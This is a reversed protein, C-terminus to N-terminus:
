YIVWAAGALVALHAPYAAYFLWKFGPGRKGNYLAILPVTLITTPILLYLWIDLTIYGRLIDAWIFPFLGRHQLINMTAFVTLMMWKPQKVIYVILIFMVGYSGFDTSLIDAISMFGIVPTASIVAAAFREGPTPAEFYQQLIIKNIWEYAVIAMGGLLLTYFINTNNLLDVHWPSYGAAINHARNISWDFFPESILAFALLRLLYKTQSRTHRFGEALLYVFIPFTMRGVVRFGFSFHYPFVAAIHDILMAALAIIKLTFASM